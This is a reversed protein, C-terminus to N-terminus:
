LVGLSFVSHLSINSEQKLVIVKKTNSLIQPLIMHGLYLFLHEKRERGLESVPFLFLLALTSFLPTSLCLSTLWCCAKFSPLALLQSFGPSRTLVCRQSCFSPRLLLSVWGMKGPLTGRGQWVVHPIYTSAASSSSSQRKKWLGQECFTREPALHSVGMDERRQYSLCWERWLDWRLNWLIGGLVQTWKFNGWCGLTVLASFCLGSMM